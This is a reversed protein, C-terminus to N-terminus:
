TGTDTDTETGTDTATGTCMLTLSCMIVACRVVRMKWGIVVHVGHWRSKRCPCVRVCVSV